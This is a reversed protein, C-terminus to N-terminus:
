GVQASMGVELKPEAVLEHIPGVAPRADPVAIAQGLAVDATEVM